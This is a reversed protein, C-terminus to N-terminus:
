KHLAKYINIIGSSKVMGKLEKKYTTGECIRKIMENVTCKPIYSKILQAEGTVFPVAISTGCFFNYKNDPMTTIINVGPAAVDITNGYNSNPDLIGINNISAVSIINPLNFSAPYITKAKESSSKNGASCVFLINHDGMSNYLVSNYKIGSWGWSCNIIQVGKTQAYEIAKIVDTILSIDSNIFKLPLIKAEPAVGVIGKRNKRAAIVGSIRTGHVDEVKSDYVSNDNNVFDWGYIDDIFGNKDDDIGNNAIEHTNIQIAGRLDEHGVDIGTDLVGVPTRSAGSTLNWAPLVKIDMKFYQNNYLGWQETFNEEKKFDRNANSDLHRKGKQPSIKKQVIFNNAKRDVVVNNYFIKTPLKKDITTGDGIQGKWNKGWSWLENNGDIALFHDYNSSIEKINILNKIKIPRSTAASDGYGLNTGGGWVWVTGDSKLAMSHSDGCAISIINSLSVVRTYSNNLNTGTFGRQGNGDSGWGWVYGNTSLALCHNSGCAIYKINKLVSIELPISSFSNADSYRELNLGWRWVTGESTVALSYCKGAYVSKINSIGQIRVPIRSNITTGNGLQGKFNLGWSWVNGDSTLALNHSDGCSIAIVNSLGSIKIPYSRFLDDSNIGLQGYINAGWAWVSGDKKLALNHFAGSSVSIVDKLDLVKLPISSDNTSKNGLQGYWNAGWAWVSGDKDLKLSHWYGCSLQSYKNNLCNYINIYYVSVLFFFSIAFFIIIKQKKM